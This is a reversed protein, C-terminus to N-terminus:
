DILFPFPMSHLNQYYYYYFFSVSFHVLTHQSFSTIKFNAELKKLFIILFSKHGRLHQPQMESGGKRWIIMIRIGQEQNQIFQELKQVMESIHLTYFGRLKAIRSINRSREVLGAGRLLGMQVSTCRLGLNKRYTALMDLYTCAPAYNAQKYVTLILCFAARWREKGRIKQGGEMYVKPRPKEQLNHARAFNDTNLLGVEREKKKKRERKGDEYRNWTEWLEM